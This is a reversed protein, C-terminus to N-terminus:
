ASPRVINHYGGILEAGSADLSVPQVRSGAPCAAVEVLASDCM